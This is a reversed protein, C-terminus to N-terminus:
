IKLQKKGHRGKKENKSTGPTQILEEKEELEHEEVQILSARKGLETTERKLKRKELIEKLYGEVNYFYLIGCVTDIEQHTGPLTSAKDKYEM